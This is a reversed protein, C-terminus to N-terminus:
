EYTEKANSRSLAPFTIRAVRRRPVMSSGNSRAAPLPAAATAAGSGAASSSGAATDEGLGHGDNRPGPAAPFASPWCGGVDQSTAVPRFTRQLAATGPKAWELGM